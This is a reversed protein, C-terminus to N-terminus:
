AGGALRRPSSGRAQAALDLDVEGAAGQAPGAGLGTRCRRQPELVIERCLGGGQGQVEAVADEAAQALLGAVLARHPEARAELQRPPPGRVRAPPPRNAGGAPG